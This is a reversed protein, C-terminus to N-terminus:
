SPAAPGAPSIPRGGRRRGHDSWWRFAEPLGEEPRISPSWGLERRARASTFPNDRTLMDHLGAARPALDPRGAVLLALGLARFLPGALAPPVLAARVRRGLGISAYAVLEAATVDFDNTLHYVGGGAADTLGARVAGDAVAHAHVLPLTTTGGNVLPFLGRELYPALRPLFQRDRKGYMVPPRVVAAWIRGAAHAELVIREAEQKSRGYADGPPLLPLPASEDTPQPYYRAPGLVSTSSVHVLRCGAGGAAAVVNATGAVNGARFTEWDSGAGIAAATHVIMDCGAAAAHLSPLRTVDGAVPAAGLGEVAATRAPDRLLGRVEWGEARLREVVYSGLMGTAGTVLARKM